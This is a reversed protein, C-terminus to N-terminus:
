RSSAGFGPIKSLANDAIAAHYPKLGVGENALFDQFSAHYIRYRKEDDDSAEENLFPRWEEIVEGIRVPDLETWEQLMATSVPERVTALFRLVPEYIREFRERDQDRMSRWHRQYYARLGKPLKDINDITVSSIRGQHIDDLVHVLYMFNGESKETIMAIFEDENVNWDRIHVAMVEGHRRVFDQIFNRVDELNQPDADRLYIDERRDVELRYDIQERSTLVLFVGDPLVAPLYLRNASPPLGVDEAEDLADVLVVLPVAGQKQAAQALLQVLHGSDRLDDESLTAGLGYRTLLQACVNELFARASRINQLAINFHHVYGRTKVLQGILATKGIGPEGRILLYGSRFDPRAIIKDIADFVFDRGIFHRTREEILEKFQRVRIFGSLPAPAGIFIQFLADGAIQTGGVITSGDRAIMTQGGFGEGSDDKGSPKDETM